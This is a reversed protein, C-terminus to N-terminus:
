HNVHYAIDLNKKIVAIGKNIKSIANDIHQKFYLKEDLILGLHKQYFSREVTININNLRIEPHSQTKKKRSFLVDQAPKSPDPNFLMKLNFVWKSIQSLDYNLANASENKENEISFLSTDDTSLKANSKLENPSGNIYVLFLRPGM